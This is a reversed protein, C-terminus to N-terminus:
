EAKLYVQFVADLTWSAIPLGSEQYGEKHIDWVEKADIDRDVTPSGDAIVELKRLYADALDIKLKDIQPQTLLQCTISGLGALATGTLFQMASIGAATNQEVVGKGWGAYSFGADQLTGYVSSLAATVATTGDASSLALVQQRLQQLQTLSISPM